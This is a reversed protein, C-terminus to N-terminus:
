MNLKIVGVGDYNSVYLVVGDTGTESLTLLGNNLAVKDGVNYNSLGTLTTDVYGYLLMIPIMDGASGGDLAIGCATQMNDAIGINSLGTFKVINGSTITESAMLTPFREGKEMYKQSFIVPNKCHSNLYVTTYLAAPYGTSIWLCGYSVNNLTVNIPRQSNQDLVHLLGDVSCNELVAKGGYTMSTAGHIIMTPYIVCDSIKVTEGDRIGLGYGHSDGGTPTTNRLNCNKIIHTQGKALIFDDHIPTRCNTALITLNEIECSRLLNLTAIQFRKDTPYSTPINCEIICNEQMGMGVLKSNAPMILGCFGSADGSYQAGNIEESTFDNAVQYTGPWVQYITNEGAGNFADRLSSYDGGSPRINVVKKAGQNITYFSTGYPIWGQLPETCVMLTNIDGLNYRGTLRMFSVNSVTVKTGYGNPQGGGPGLDTKNSDYVRWNNLTAPVGNFSVYFVDGTKIPIYDTTFYENNPTLGGPVSTDFTQNHNVTSIDFLNTIDNYEQLVSKYDTGFPMFETEANNIQIQLNDPTCQSYQFDLRIYKASSNTITTGSVFWTGTELKTTYEIGSYISYKPAHFSTSTKSFFYVKDGPNVPIFPTVFHSSDAQTDGNMKLTTNPLANSPDFLNPSEIQEINSSNLFTNFAQLPTCKDIASKLDHVDDGMKVATWHAATWEEATDIATNCKYLAGSYCVYDGEAYTGQNSYNDALNGAVNAAATNAAQAAANANDAATQTANPLALIADKVLGLTEDTAIRKSVNSM